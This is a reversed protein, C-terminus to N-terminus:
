EHIAQIFCGFPSENELGFYNGYISGPNSGPGSPDLIIGNVTGDSDGLDGDKLKLSVATRDPHIKAFDRYSYWGDILDYKYWESNAPIAESLFVTVETEAGPMVALKFSILGLPTTLPRNDMDTITNPDIWRLSDIAIVNEPVQVCYVTDNQGSRVCRM